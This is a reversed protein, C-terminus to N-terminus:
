SYVFLQNYISNKNNLLLVQFRKATYLDNIKFLFVITQYCFNFDNVQLCIM